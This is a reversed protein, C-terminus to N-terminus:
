ATVTASINNVSSVLGTLQGVAKVSVFIKSGAVPTGFKLVYASWLDVPGAVSCDSIAINRYMSKSPSFVGPSMGITASVLTTVGEANIDYDMDFRTSSVDVALTTAVTPLPAVAGLVPTTMTYGLGANSANMNLQVFASKGSITTLQKFRNMSSTKYNKWSAQEAGSLAGWESSFRSMLARIGTTYANRVLSPITFRRKRGNSQYVDGGTRGSIKGDNGLLYLASLKAGVAKGLFPVFLAVAILTFLLVKGLGRVTLISKTGKPSDTTTGKPKKAFNKM